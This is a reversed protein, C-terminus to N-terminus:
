VRVRDEPDIERLRGRTAGGGRAWPRRRRSRRGVLWHRWGALWHRRRRPGLAARFADWTAAVTSGHNLRAGDQDDIEPRLVRLQDGAPDALAVHVRLDDRVVRWQLLDPGLAGGADDQGAAGCADVFGAGRRDIGPQELEAYRHQADAVAVLQHRLGQAALDGGGALALVSSCCEVGLAGADEQLIEGFALLHPHAVATVRAGSPKRTVAVV